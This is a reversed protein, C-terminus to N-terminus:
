RAAVFVPLRWSSVFARLINQVFWSRTKTGEHSELINFGHFGGEIVDANGDLIQGGREREIAVCKTELDLPRLVDVRLFDPRMERWDALRPQLQEFRRRGFRWDRFVDVLAAGAQMVDRQADLVDMGRKRLQFRTPHPQDVLRRTGAGFMGQYCEHMGSRGAPHQDLELLGPLGPPDSPAVVRSMFGVIPMMPPLPRYSMASTVSRSSFCILVGKPSGDPGYTIPVRRPFRTAKRARWPTPWRIRGESSLKRAFM